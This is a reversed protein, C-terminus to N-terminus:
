ECHPHAVHNDALKDSTSVGAPGPDLLFPVEQSPLHPVLRNTPCRALDHARFNEINRTLEASCWIWDM